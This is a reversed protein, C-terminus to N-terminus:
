NINTIQGNIELNDFKYQELNKFMSLHKSEDGRLRSQVNRRVKTKSQSTIEPFLM